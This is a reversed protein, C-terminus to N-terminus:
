GSRNFGVFLYMLKGLRRFYPHNKRERKGLVSEVPEEANENKQECGNEPKNEPENEPEIKQEDEDIVFAGNDIGDSENSDLFVPRNKALAQLKRSNRLSM